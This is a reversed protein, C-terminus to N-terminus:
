VETRRLNSEFSKQYGFWDTEAPMQNNLEKFTEMKADVNDAFHLAIAEVLEPVKPSGYELKGHHALICHMLETKLIVPFDKQNDAARSIMEAGIYIHGLMQGEDTYDNEPFASFERVKGVDHLLAATVLLDRNIIEYRKAFDECVGTVSLTHELLGGVFAHHMSKAASCHLLKAKVSEDKVFIDELLTKLYPNKVTAIKQVVEQYMVKTDRESAPLYDSLIYEGERCKRVRDVKCQLKGQYSTVSANVCIIDGSDFEDIGMGSVEWVKADLSGTKDQLEFSFYPKGAKTELTKKDKCLYMDNIYDGEKIDKTYKM